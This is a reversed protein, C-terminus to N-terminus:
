IFVDWDVGDLSEKPTIGRYFRRLAGFQTNIRIKDPDIYTHLLMNSAIGGEM